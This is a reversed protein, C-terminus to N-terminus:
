SEKPDHCACLCNSGDNQCGNPAHNGWDGCKISYTSRLAKREAEAMYAHYRADREAARTAADRPYTTM